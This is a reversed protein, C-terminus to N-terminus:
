EVERNRDSYVCRGQCPCNDCDNDCDTQDVPCSDCDGDCDYDSVDDVRDIVIKGETATFQVLDGDGIDAEEMVDGPIAFLVAPTTKVEHDKM